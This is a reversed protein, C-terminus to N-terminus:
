NSKPALVRPSLSLLAEVISPDFQTGAGAALRNKAERADLALRYPRDTTMADFADVVGIIRGGLPIHEAKLNDPYGTGDWREHHSRVMPSILDGHRLTSVIEAGHSPHQKIYAWDGPTLETTKRLIEVPVAIKGIDHLLGAARVAILDLNSLGLRHAVHGSLTRLREIHGSTYPDHKEVTRAVAGLVGTADELHRSAQHQQTLRRVRTGLVVSDVPLYMVNDVGVDYAEAELHSYKEHLLMVIPVESNPDSKISRCLAISEYNRGEIILADIRGEGCFGVVAAGPFMPAVRLGMQQLMFRHEDLKPYENSVLLVTYAELSIDNM